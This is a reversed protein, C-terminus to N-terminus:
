RRPPRGAAPRRRAPRRRTAPCRAALGPAPRRRALAGRRPGGPHPRERGRRTEKGHRRTGTEAVALRANRRPSDATERRHTRRKVACRRCRPQATPRRGRPRATPRRYPPRARRSATSRTTRLASASARPASCSASGSALPMSTRPPSTPTSSARGNRTWRRIPHASAPRTSTGSCSTCRGPSGSRRSCRRRSRPRAGTAGPSPPRSASARASATSCRAGPSAEVGAPRRHIACRFDAQLNTCPHGRAQRRRLGGVRAFAPRSCACGWAVRATRV